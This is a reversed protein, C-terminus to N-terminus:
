LNIDTRYEFSESARTGIFQGCGASQRTVCPLKAPVMVVVQPSVPRVLAARTLGALNVYEVACRMYTPVIAGMYPASSNSAQIRNSLSVHVHAPPPQLRHAPRRPPLPM